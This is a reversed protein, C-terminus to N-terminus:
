LDLLNRKRTLRVPFFNNKRNVEMFDHCLREIEDRGAKYAACLLANYRNLYKTAVGRYAEYRQKIFSHFNNARNLNFFGREADETTNVDRVACGTKEGLAAYGRLGDCLLLTGREIHEGLAQQLEQKSPKARNVACAYATGNREVGTCICIYEQSLGSKEAVAGHKRQCRGNNEAFKTGKYNDLVYTEDLETVGGLVTEANEELATLIKHRMDFVCQHSLSLQQATFDISRGYITDAIVARWTAASQRSHSMITHTTTVFTRNCSKCLFRQKGCKKGYRIIHSEGCYPCPVCQSPSDTQMEEAIKCLRDIMEAPLHFLLNMLDTLTKM